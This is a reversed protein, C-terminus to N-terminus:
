NIAKFKRSITSIARKAQRIKNLISARTWLKQGVLQDQSNRICRHMSLVMLVYSTVALITYHFERKIIPGVKSSERLFRSM